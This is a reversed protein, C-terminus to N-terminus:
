PTGLKLLKIVCQCNKLATKENAFTNVGHITYDAFFTDKHFVAISWEYRKNSNYNICKRLFHIKM